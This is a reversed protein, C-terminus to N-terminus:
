RLIDVVTAALEDAIRIFHAAATFAQQFRILDLQEEDLSVGANAERRNEMETLVLQQQAAQTTNQQSQLGVSSLFSRYFEGFTANDLLKSQGLGALVLANANDGTVPTQAAAIKNADNLVGADVAITKAADQTTSILFTDGAQPAGSGNAIVVQLGAFRIVSGSTYTQGSAVTTNTTANVINFTPPPGNTAFTIRYDDLTLQPPDFVTVSQLTGGGTNSVLAQSTAQRPVFFLNGTTGDLGFGTSHVQNIADIFKAALRDLSTTFQPILVDRMRLLGHIKGASVSATVDTRTGQGDQMYVLLQEPDNPNVGTLMSRVQGGEVLPRGIGLKGALQTLLQERTDRLTNAPNTPDAEVRSIQLNLEAIQSTLRNVQDLENKLATNVDQRLDQLGQHLQRFTEAVSMGQQQVLAREAAGQPNNALEQFGAFFRELASSLGADELSLDNFLVEVQKLLDAQEQSSQLNATALHIQTAVFRDFVREVQAVSVGTRLVSGHLATPTSVFVARERSYGPTNVNAINQGVVQLAKQQAQLAQQGTSLISSIGM